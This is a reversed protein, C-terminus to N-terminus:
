TKRAERYGSKYGALFAQNLLSAYHEASGLDRFVLITRGSRNNVQFKEERQEV